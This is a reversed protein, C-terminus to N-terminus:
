AGSLQCSSSVHECTPGRDGLGSGDSLLAGRAAAPVLWPYLGEEFQYAWAGPNGVVAQRCSVRTIDSLEGRWMECHQLPCITEKFEFFAKIVAQLITPQPLLRCVELLCPQTECYGLPRGAELPLWIGVAEESGSIGLPPRGLFSLQWTPVPDGTWLVSALQKNPPSTCVWLCGAKGWHFPGHSGLHQTCIPSCVGFVLHSMQLCSGLLPSCPHRCADM